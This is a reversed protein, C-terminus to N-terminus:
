HKDHITIVMDVGSANLLLLLLVAVKSNCLILGILHQMGFSPRMVVISM